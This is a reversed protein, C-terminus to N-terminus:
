MWEGYRRVYLKKIWQVSLLYGALLLVLWPIFTAPLRQMELGIAGDTFGIIITIATVIFTSLFLPMSPRSQLFPIKATRIMHIVLVQSITGFIFWGAQFLPSLVTTQAGLAWWMIAFCSIDFVSSLPGMLAMFSKISQTEWKRPQKIYEKDVSDFPMGM